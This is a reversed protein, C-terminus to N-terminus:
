LYIARISEFNQEISSALLYDFLNNFLESKEKELKIEKFVKSLKCFKV